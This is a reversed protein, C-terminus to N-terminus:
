HFQPSDTNCVVRSLSTIYKVEIKNKKTLIKYYVIRYGLENM